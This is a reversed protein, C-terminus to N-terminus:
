LTKYPKFNIAMIVSTCICYCFVSAVFVIFLYCLQFIYSGPATQLSKKKYETSNFAYLLRKSTLWAERFRRYQPINYLIDCQVSHTLM